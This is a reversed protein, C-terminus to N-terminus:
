HPAPPVQSRTRQHRHRHVDGTRARRLHACSPVYVSHLPTLLHCVFVAGLQWLDAPM